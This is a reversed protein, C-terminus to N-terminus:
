AVPADRNKYWGFQLATKRRHCNACRIQCKKIENRIQAISFNYTIMKSISMNKDAIHDFELVTVDKEKCDVCEKTNLYNWIFRQADRRLVLNRKRAKKIYYEKNELYHKKIEIRTCVKCHSTYIKKRANRINFEILPKIQKCKTCAKM